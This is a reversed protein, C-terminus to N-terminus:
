KRKKFLRFIFRPILIIIYVFLTFVLPHYYGLGYAGSNPLNKLHELPYEMFEKNHFIMSLVFFIILIIWIEKKL